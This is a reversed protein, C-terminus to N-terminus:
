LERDQGMGERGNRRNRGERGGEIGGERDGERMENLVSGRADEYLTNSIKFFNSAFM